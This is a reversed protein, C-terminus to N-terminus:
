CIIFCKLTSHIYLYCCKYKGNKEVRTLPKMGSFVESLETMREVGEKKYKEWKNQKEVLLQLLFCFYNLKFSYLLKPALMTYLSAFLLVLWSFINYLLIMCAMFNGRYRLIANLCTPPITYLEM